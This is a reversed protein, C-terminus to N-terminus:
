KKEKAKSVTLYETEKKIRFKDLGLLLKKSINGNYILEELTNQDVYEKTKICSTFEKHKHMYELLADEDYAESVRVEFKATWGDVDTNDMKKTRMIEKIDKNWSDLSKKLAKAEENTKGYLPVLEKLSKKPEVAKTRAM